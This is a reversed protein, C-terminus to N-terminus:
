AAQIQSDGYSMATLGLNRLYLNTLGVTGGPHNGTFMVTKGLEAFLSESTKGNGWSIPTRVVEIGSTNILLDSFENASALFVFSPRHFKILEIIQQWQSTKLAERYSHGDALIEWEPLKALAAYPWVNRHRKAHLPFLELLASQRSAPTHHIDALHHKQYYRVSKATFSGDLITLLIKIYGAWTRQLKADFEHGSKPCPLFRSSQYMCDEACPKERCDSGRFSRQGDSMYERHVELANSVLADAEDPCDGNAEELGVFWFPADKSGYILKSQHIENIADRLQASNM